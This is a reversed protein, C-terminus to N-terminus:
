PVNIKLFFHDVAKKVGEWKRYYDMKIQTHGQKKVKFQWTVVVPAGVKNNDAAPKTNESLLDLYKGDLQDIYWSYGASGSSPLEVQIVDGPKAKIETGSDTKTMIFINSRSTGEDPASAFASGCLIALMLIGMIGMNVKRITQTPM